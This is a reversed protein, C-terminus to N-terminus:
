RECAGLDARQGQPRPLGNCDIPAIYRDTAQGIAPSRRQLTYDRHARDRFLPDISFNESNKMGDRSIDDEGNGFILNNNAANETGVPGGWFTRIGQGGNFVVINNVIATADSTTDEGGVLVGAESNDAVTNQNIVARDFDPYVQIGAGHNDFVVNSEVSAGAGRGLAIGAGKRLRGNDHVANALVSADRAGEGVFIGARPSRSVDNGVLTVRRGGSVHVVVGDRLEGGDIALGAVVVDSAEIRLKGILIPRGGSANRITLPAARRGGRSVTPSERYTGAAVLITDGPLATDVAHQLTRWPRPESGDNLDSGVPAVLYTRGETTTGADGRGCGAAAISM